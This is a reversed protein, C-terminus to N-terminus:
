QRQSLTSRASKVSARKTAVTASKEAAKGTSRRPQTATNPKAGVRKTAARKRVAGNEDGASRKRRGSDAGYGNLVATDVLKIESPTLKFYKTISTDSWKRDLRPLPIWKCVTENIHQSNKRLSLMLNALKTRM